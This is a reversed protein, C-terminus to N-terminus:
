CRWTPSASSSSRSCAPHGAGRRALPGRHEAGPLAPALGEYERPALLILDVGRAVLDEVDSVQKSTQGQADTVVLGYNRKAAEEKLSATQALRWPNNHEM